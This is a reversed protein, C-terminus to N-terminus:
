AEEITVTISKLGPRSLLDERKLTVQEMEGPAMIQRKRRSVREDDFYVSIYANQYVAGVRFRVVQQEEMRHPHVRAPVTYRVGGKAAVPIPTEDTELQGQVYKAASRGAAAAEQSVFDVLDHVHLVNGCAFM